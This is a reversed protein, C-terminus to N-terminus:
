MKKFAQNPVNILRCSGAPLNELTQRTEVDRLTIAIIVQYPIELNLISKFFQAMDNTVISHQAPEDFILINPHNGDMNKSTQLLAMTFAWIARINDSASLDFKMDFGEISPLYTDLSIDVENLNLISKYGYTRLNNIFNSKVNKIKDKDLQTFKDNPISAKSHLYAAWKESLSAIIVKGDDFVQKLNYIGNIEADIQLRKYVLAESIDNNTSYIDSRISKALRRLSFLREELIQVKHNLFDKNQRHGNIAFELMEKQAELHRVNEDISMIRMSSQNPVLTDNISQNCVPCLDISSLNNLESGLKRLRAADKNNRLDSNIIELSETLSTISADEKSFLGNYQILEQNINEITEETAKLENQLDDFNDIVRPKLQKLDEYQEQLSKINDDIPESNKVIYIKSLEM